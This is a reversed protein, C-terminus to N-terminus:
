YKVAASQQWGDGALVGYRDLCDRCKQVAEARPLQADERQTNVLAHAALADKRFRTLDDEARRQQANHYARLGVGTTVAVVLVAAGALAAATVRPHRRFWKLVRQWRSPDPAYKLPRNDLHRELDERLEHASQYRRAPNP